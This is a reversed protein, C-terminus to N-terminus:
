GLSFREEPRGSGKLFFPTASLDYAARVGLKPQSNWGQSGSEQKKMEDEAEKREDGSLKINEESNYRRYCHHAEDNLVVINKKNSVEAYV